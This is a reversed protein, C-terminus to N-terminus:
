DKLNRVDRIHADPFLERFRQVEPHSLARETLGADDRPAPPNLSAGTQVEGQKVMIRIPRGAIQQVIKPIEPEGRVAMGYLRSSTFVLENGSFVVESHEM